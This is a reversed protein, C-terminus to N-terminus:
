RGRWGDWARRLRGRAKRAGEAQRLEAAWEQVAQADQRAADTLARQGALEEQTAELLANTADAREREATEGQAAKAAAQQAALADHQAVALDRSYMDTMLAQGAKLEDITTRLAGAEAQEGDVRESLRDARLREEGLARDAEARMMVMETNLADIQARLDDARQREAERGAESRQLQERLVSVADELAALGRALLGTDPPTAGVEYPSTPRNDPPTPRDDRWQEAALDDVPVLIVAPAGPFNGRTRQWGRRRTLQRAADGSIGLRTALEAYTLRHVDGQTPPVHEGTDPM